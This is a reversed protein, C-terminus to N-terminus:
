FGGLIYKHEIQNVNTQEILGWIRLQGRLHDNGVWAMESGRRHEMELEKSRCERDRGGERGSIGM